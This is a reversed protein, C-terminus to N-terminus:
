DSKELPKGGANDPLLTMSRTTGGCHARVTGNACSKLDGYLRVEVRPQQTPRLEKFLENWRRAELIKQNAFAYRLEERHMHTIRDIFLSTTLKATEVMADLDFPEPETVLWHGCPNAPNAPNAYHAAAANELLEYADQLTSQIWLYVSYPVQIHQPTSM